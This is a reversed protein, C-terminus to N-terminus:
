VKVKHYIGHRRDVPEYAARQPSALIDRESGLAVFGFPALSEHVLDLVRAKLTEGFAWLMNRCLVLNFENFPADTVPFHSSFVVRRRLPPVPVTKGHARRFHASLARRGGAQRYNREAAEPDGEPMEGRSARAVISEHIDTAYIRFPRTLQEHLLAAISFIEEGSGCGMVWVRVSPYTRLYPAVKRALTRYFGVPAFLGGNRPAFEGLFRELCAPERLIRGLLATPSPAGEEALRRRVAARLVDPAYDRLDYGYRRHVGELLLGVEIEEIKEEAVAM